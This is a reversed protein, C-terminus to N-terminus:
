ARTCSVQSSQDDTMKGTVSASRNEIKAAPVAREDIEEFLRAVVIHDPDVTGGLLNGRRPPEAHLFNHTAVRALVQFPHRAARLIYHDGEVEEFM